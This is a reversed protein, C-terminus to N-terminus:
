LRPLKNLGTIICTVNEWTNVKYTHAGHGVHAAPMWLASKSSQLYTTNALTRQTTLSWNGLGRFGFTDTRTPCIAQLAVWPSSLYYTEQHYPRTNETRARIWDTRKEQDLQLSPAAISAGDQLGCKEVICKAVLWPLSAVRGKGTNSTRSGQGLRWGAESSHSSIFCSTWGCSEEEM